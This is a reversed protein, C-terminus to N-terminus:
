SWLRRKSRDTKKAAPRCMPLMRCQRSHWYMMQRRTKLQHRWLRSRDTKKAAPRCMPLMRCRRSHWYIMQRRTKPQHRCLAALRRGCDGFSGPSLTRVISRCGCASQGITSSSRTRIMWPAPIWPTPFPPHRFARRPGAVAFHLACGALLAVACAVM